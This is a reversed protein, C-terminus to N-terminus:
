KSLGKVIGEYVFSRNGSQQWPATESATDFVSSFSIGKANSGLESIFTSIFLNYYEGVAQRQEVSLNIPNAQAGDENLVNIKLSVRVPKGFSALSKIAAVTNADIATQATADLSYSASLVVNVGDVKVGNGEIKQIETKLDAVNSVMEDGVSLTQSVYFKADSGAKAAVAKQVDAVYKDGLYDSWLFKANVTELPQDFIVYDKVSAACIETIGDVWKFLEGNIIEAKEEPTKVIVTDDGTNHMLQITIDDICCTIDSGYVGLALKFSNKAKEANSLKLKSLDFVYEEWQNESSYPNGKENYGASEVQFRSSSPKGSIFLCKLKVRSVDAVTFGDPLKVEPIMPLDLKLNKGCLVKGQQGLPDDIVSVNASGAQSKSSPYEKGIADNEFDTILIDENWPQYPIVVDAILSKLYSSPINVDSCLAPGFVNIGAKEATEVLNSLPTFDYTDSETKIALPTIAVASEVQNFNTKVIGYVLEQAAFVDPNVAVGIKLSADDTYKCLVDYSSLRESLAVDVPKEPIQFSDKYDEACSALILCTSALPLWNIIYKKM